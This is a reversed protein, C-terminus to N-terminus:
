CKFFFSLSDLCTSIIFKKLVRSDINQVLFAGGEGMLFSNKVGLSGKFINLKGRNKM